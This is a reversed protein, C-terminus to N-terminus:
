RRTKKGSFLIAAATVKVADVGIFPAAGVLWVGIGPFMTGYGIALWMVGFTYLTCVGAIGAMAAGAADRRSKEFLMGAVYAMPVFGILYGATPGAFALPGAKITAFVPAGLLGATLYEVQALAAWRGGLVLACCVVAFVQMTIPVPNGPLYFVLQACAAVFVAGILSAVFARWGTLKRTKVDALVHM